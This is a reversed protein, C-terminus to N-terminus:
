ARCEPRQLAFDLSAEFSLARGQEWATNLDTESIQERLLAMNRQFLDHIIPQRASSSNERSKETAGLLKAARHPLNQAIALYAFMEFCYPVGVYNKIEIQIELSQVLVAWADEYRGEEIAINGIGFTTHAVAWIEGLERFIAVCEALYQSALAFNNKYYWYMGLSDLAWALGRQDGVERALEVVEENVRRAHELAHPSSSFIVSWGFNSLAPLLERHNDNAEVLAMGERVRAQATDDDGQWCLVMILSSLANLTGSEDSTQRFLVLSEELLTRAKALDVEFWALRGAGCLARARVLLLDDSDNPM